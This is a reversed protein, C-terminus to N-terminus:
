QVYCFGKWDWGIEGRGGLFVVPRLQDSINEETSVGPMNPKEEHERTHWLIHKAFSTCKCQDRTLKVQETMCLIFKKNEVRVKRAKFDGLDPTGLSKLAM